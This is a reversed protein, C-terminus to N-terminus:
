AGRLAFPANQSTAFILKLRSLSWFELVCGINTGPDGSRHVYQGYLVRQTPEAGLMLLRLIEADSEGIPYALEWSCLRLLMRDEKYRESVSMGARRLARQSPSLITATARAYLRRWPERCHSLLESPPFDRKFIMLWVEDSSLVTALAGSRRTCSLRTIGEADMFSSMLLLVDVPLSALTTAANPADPEAKHRKLSQEAMAVQM